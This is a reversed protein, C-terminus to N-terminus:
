ITKPLAAGAPSLGPKTAAPSAPSKTFFALIVGLILMGASIQFAPAYSHQQDHIGAALMPGLVGAFGFATFVLGYNVGLNRIGYFDATATPMLTFIGGYCLGTFAAGFIVLGPTTYYRFALMNVAQLAFALMMTRTRGIRDSLVGSLLRGFTNFLALTAVPVYGWDWGAQEKAIKPVHAIIMMGASASLVMLLWLQYFQPSRLMDQWDSEARGATASGPTTAPTSAALPPNRLLQALLPVILLVAVGLTTFTKSIGISKILHQTLPSIYVAALGIGSVVIGTIFGKRAPPFWKIAPPTTASYGLGIGLGAGVGFALTMVQWTDALASGLLGLGLMIGGAAAVRRPGFRDQWRGAFVMMLAFCATAVSMPLTAQTSSWHWDSVLPKGIVGWAYLVGLILNIALGAIVVTWGEVGPLRDQNM